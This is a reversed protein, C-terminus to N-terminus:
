WRPLLFTLWLVVSARCDCEVGGEVMKVPIGCLETWPGRIKENYVPTHFTHINQSDNELAVKWESVHLNVSKYHSAGLSHVSEASQLVKPKLPGGSHSTVRAVKMALSVTLNRVDSINLDAVLILRRWTYHVLPWLLCTVKVKIKLTM